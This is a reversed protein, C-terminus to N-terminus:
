EGSLRLKIALGTMEAKFDELKLLGVCPTAGHADLKGTALKRVLATAALTPIYPGDGQEAIIQWSRRAFQGSQNKGSIEVFMAGNHSGLWMLKESIKILPKAHVVWDKVWGIRRLKSMGWMIFQMWPLELGAKFSVSQVGAYREPFIALDPVDCDSLWRKGIPEAFQYSSLGQWGIAIQWRGAKWVEIASGCYSLIGQVTALGRETKNGPSIGIHISDIQTYDKALYDVAASSLAPVSSAGTVVLVGAERAKILLQDIRSVFERGDSLDIYHVGAAICAEAVRYDQGQFPGSTHIVVDAGSKSIQDALDQSMADLQWASCVAGRRTQSLALAYRRAADLSRGAIIIQVNPIHTLREALRQGFFGYGGIILAIYPIIVEESTM